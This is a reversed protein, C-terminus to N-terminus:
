GAAPSPTAVQTLMLLNGDPDSVYAIREGWPTDSPEVIVPAGGARAAEFDAALDEVYVCLEVRHGSAPRLAQGHLPSDDGIAGIGLDSDGFRLVVFAPDGDAPFRYTVEGGLTDRYLALSAAMDEVSLMPFVQRTAM